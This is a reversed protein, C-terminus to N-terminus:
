SFKKAINNDITYICVGKAGEKIYGCRECLNNILFTVDNRIKKDYTKFAEKDFDKIALRFNENGLFPDM